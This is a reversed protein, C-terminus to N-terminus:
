ATLDLRGSSSQAKSQDAVQALMAVAAEGAQKQTDLAKKNKTQAQSIASMAASSVDM